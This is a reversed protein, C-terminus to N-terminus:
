MGRTGSLSSYAALDAAVEAPRQGVVRLVEEVPPPVPEHRLHRAVELAEVVVVVVGGAQDLEGIRRSSAMSMCSRCQCIWQTSFKAWNEEVVFRLVTMASTLPSPSWLSRMPRSCLEISFRLQSEMSSSQFSLSCDLLVAAGTASAKARAVARLDALRQLGGVLAPREQLLLDLGVLPDEAVLRHVGM